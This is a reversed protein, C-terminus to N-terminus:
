ARDRREGASIAPYRGVLRIVMREPGTVGIEELPSVTIGREFLVNMANLTIETIENPHNFHTHLVVAKHLKRGREVVDTLADLWEKDTLIKQPMVAPGKTGIEEAFRRCFRDFPEGRLGIVLGPKTCFQGGGITVSGALGAAIGDGHEELAGPLLIVPNISSM